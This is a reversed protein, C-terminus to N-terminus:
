DSRINPVSVSAAPKGLQALQGSSDHRVAKAFYSVADDGVRDTDIELKASGSSVSKAADLLDFSSDYAEAAALFTGTIALDDTTHPELEREVLETAIKIPFELDDDSYETATADLARRVDAPAINVM